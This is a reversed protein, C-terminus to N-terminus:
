VYVVVEKGAPLLLIENGALGNSTIFFDFNADNEGPGGYETLAIEIPARPYELVFRKEIKLNFSTKIALDVANLVAQTTDPFSESQSFYQRDARNDEFLKQLQDLQETSNVFLESIVEAADLADKRTELEADIVSQASAILVASTAMDMVSAVNRSESFPTIPTLDFISAGLTQLSSLRSTINNTALIPLQILQQIQSAITGLFLEAQNLANNVARIVSNIYANLQGNLEYLASMASQIRELLSRSSVVVANQDSATELSVFREFQGGAAENAEGGQNRLQETQEEISIIREPALPELWESTFDSINANETRDLSETISVLQLNLKDLVPHTISWLGSERCAEFFAAAQQDHNEGSFSFNIPYITGGTDLDQVVVGPIKPYKFIGLQKELTRPNSKWAASFRKKSPSVFDITPKTRDQWTM